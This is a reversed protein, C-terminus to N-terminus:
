ITSSIVLLRIPLHLEGKPVILLHGCDQYQGNWYLAVLSSFQNRGAKAVGVSQRSKFALSPLVIWALRFISLSGTISVNTISELPLSSFSRRGRTPSLVISSPLAVSHDGKSSFVLFFACKSSKCDRGSSHSTTQGNSLTRRTAVSSASNRNFCLLKPTPPVPHVPSKKKSRTRKNRFFLLRNSLFSQKQQTTERGLIKCIRFIRFRSIVYYHCFPTTSLIANDWMM